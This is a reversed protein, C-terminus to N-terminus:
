CASISSRMNCATCACHQLAKVGALQEAQGTLVHHLPEVQDDGQQKHHDLLHVATAAPPWEGAEQPLTALDEPGLHDDIHDLMGDKPLEVLDPRADVLLEHLYRM